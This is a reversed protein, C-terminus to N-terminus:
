DNPMELWDIEILEEEWQNVKDLLPSQDSHTKHIAIKQLIENHENTIKDLLDFHKTFDNRFFIKWVNEVLLLEHKKTVYRVLNNQM